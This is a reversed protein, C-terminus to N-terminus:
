NIIIPSQEIPTMEKAIHLFLEATDRRPLDFLHDVMADFLEKTITITEKDM